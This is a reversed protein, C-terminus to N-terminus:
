PAGGENEAVVKWAEDAQLGVARALRAASVRVGYYARVRVVEAEIEREQATLWDTQLAVGEEYSDRAVRNAERAAEASVEAAQLRSRATRYDTLAAEVEQMVRNDLAALQWRVQDKLSELRAVGARRRGGDFFEWRLGVGVFWDAFLSTDLNEPLRATHGYYGNLDVQPYGDARTVTQQKGLAELQLELDQFEPRRARATALAAALEPVAPLSEDLEAVELPLDSDIDLVARLEIEALRVAGVAFDVTPELQALAAQAQLQELRTAEGLEYRAEVVALSERRAQRQIEVTELGKRAELVGLYSEAALLGADLRAAAIQADTLEVVLRALEIGAGIKGSTFLPQSLEVSLNYLEQEGPEFGPFFEIIDEFDPSNLLAPNRSRDWSSRFALQPYAEAWAERVGAKVETLRQEEAKLAPNRELALAVARELDVVEARVGSVAGVLAALSLMACLRMM